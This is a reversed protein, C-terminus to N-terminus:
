PVTLLISIQIEPVVSAADLFLLLIQFFSLAEIHLMQYLFNKEFCDILYERVNGLFILRAYLM